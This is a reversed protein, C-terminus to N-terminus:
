NSNTWVKVQQELYSQTAKLATLRTQMATYVSTLREQYASMSTDLADLQKQLSAKLKDYGGTSTALPGDSGNLYDTVSKLAGALGPRTESPESPNLMATVAAPDQAIAADLRASNLTLTGDRNTSVGIDALSTFPGDPALATGTLSSLRRMMDRVGSDGALPGAASTNAGAATATNLGSRLQNYAGVYEEVLQKMTSSPANMALSVLTGPAAKNLDIRLNPVATTITNSAFNMEVDDIRIIANQATQSRAMGGTTGNWSFRALDADADGNAALTFAQDAGTAGKLILRAGSVDTVVSATVGAESDNIAEALDALTNSPSTLAINFAGSATTLTLSGTGAVATSGSLAASQLTQARALQRVDIQAPLGSPTGTGSLSVAVITPDNSAPQGKYGNGKLLENLATSFTSLAGKASALASIRSNNTAVRDNIAEQRPLRSANVLDSVLKTTDIGSGIGLTSAIDVM